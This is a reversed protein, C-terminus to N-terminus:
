VATMCKALRALERAAAAAPATAAAAMRATAAAASPHCAAAVQQQLLQPLLLLLLLHHQQLAPLQLLLAQALARIGAAAMAKATHMAMHQQMNSHRLRCATHISMAPSGRLMGMHAMHTGM